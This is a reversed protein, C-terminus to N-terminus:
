PRPDAHYNGRGAFMHRIGGRPDAVDGSWRPMIHWHLHPVTQGAASGDNLGDNFADPPRHDAAELRDFAQTIFAQARAPPNTALMQRYVDRLSVRAIHAKAAVVAPTLARQEEVTLDSMHQAHRRSLVLAHGPTVPYIDWLAVFLSGPEDMFVRYRDQALATCLVCPETM